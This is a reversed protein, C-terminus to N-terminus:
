RYRITYDKAAGGCVAGQVHVGNKVGSFERSFADGKGCELWAHGGFQVDTVGEQQMLRHMDDLPVDCSGTALLVGWILFILAAFIMTGASTDDDM